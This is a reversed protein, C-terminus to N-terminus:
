ENKEKEETKEKILEMIKPIYPTLKDFNDKVFDLSKQLVSKTDKNNETEVLKDVKKSVRILLAMVCIAFIIFLYKAVIYYETLFELM